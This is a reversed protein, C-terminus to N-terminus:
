HYCHRHPVWQAMIFLQIQKAILMITLHDVYICFLDCRIFVVVSCFLPHNEQLYNLERYQFPFQQSSRNLNSVQHNQVKLLGYLATRSVKQTNIDKQYLASM